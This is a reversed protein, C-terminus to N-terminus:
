EVEKKKAECFNNSGHSISSYQNIFGCHKIFGCYDISSCHNISSETKWTTKEASQKVLRKALRKAEPKETTEKDFQARTCYCLIKGISLINVFSLRHHHAFGEPFYENPAHNRTIIPRKQCTSHESKKNTISFLLTLDSKVFGM